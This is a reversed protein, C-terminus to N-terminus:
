PSTQLFSNQVFSDQSMFSGIGYKAVVKRKEEIPSGKNEPIPLFRLAVFKVFAAAFLCGLLPGFIYAPLYPLSDNSKLALMCFIVNCIGVNPNMVAGTRNGICGCSFNIGILSAMVGPVMDSFLSLKAHKGHLITMMMTWTFFMELIFIYFGSSNLDQPKIFAIKDGLFMYSIWMGLFGGVLEAVEYVLFAMLQKKSYNNEVILVAVTLGMNFHAGTQRATLMCGTYIGGLVLAHNGQSFNIGIFLIATGMMEYIFLIFYDLKNELKFNGAEM